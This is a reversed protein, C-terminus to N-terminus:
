GEGLLADIAACAAKRDQKVRFKNAQDKSKVIEVWPKATFHPYSDHSRYIAEAMREVVEDTRMQDRQRKAGKM